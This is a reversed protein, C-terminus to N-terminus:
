HYSIEKFEEWFPLTPMVRGLKLSRVEQGPTTSTLGVQHTPAPFKPGQTRLSEPNELVLLAHGGRQALESM